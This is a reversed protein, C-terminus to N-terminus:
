DDAFIEDEATAKAARSVWRGLVEADTCQNIRELGAQSLDIGRAALVAGLAERKGLARGEVRGEERGEANLKRMFDSKFERGHITM